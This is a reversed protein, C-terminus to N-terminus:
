KGSVEKEANRGPDHVPDTNNSFSINANKSSDIHCSDCSTTSEQQGSTYQLYGLVGPIVALVAYIILIIGIKIKKNM